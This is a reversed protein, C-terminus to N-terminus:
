FLPEVSRIWILVEMGDLIRGLAYHKDIVQYQYSVKRKIAHKKIKEWTELDRYHDDPFTKYHPTDLM